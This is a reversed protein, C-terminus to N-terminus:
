WAKVEDTQPCIQHRSGVYWTTSGPKSSWGSSGVPGTQIRGSRRPMWRSCALDTQIRGSRRLAGPSPDPPQPNSDRV